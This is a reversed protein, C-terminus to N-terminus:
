TISANLKLSWLYAHHEASLHSLTSIFEYLANVYNKTHLFDLGRKNLM